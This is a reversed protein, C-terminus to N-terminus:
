TLECGIFSLTVKGSIKLKAQWHQEREDASTIRKIIIRTMKAAGAPSWGHGIKKIRRGIERMMREIMSSVRPHVVGTRLWTRVYSFMKAKANALYTAAAGYGRAKFEDVLHQVGKEAEFVKKELELREELGVRELDEGPLEIDIMAALESTFRKADGAEAKDTYKLLPHLDHPLHWICRQSEKTLRGMYKVLPAEGDSVLLDAIPTFKIKPSPHNAKKIERSIEAWSEETWAGYPVITNEKTIGVVVCVEGRNSGDADLKQKFGTGDAVLTKVRKKMSIADCDSKMVWRHLTTHPVPIAGITQLHQSSRRYSQESVVEAVVRELESTKRQHPELNLYGRLPIFSKGCGVCRIRTWPLSLKGAMSKISKVERSHVVYHAHDCCRHPASKEWRGLLSPYVILDMFAVLLNVLGAMGEEDFMRKTEIVLEDLSFGEKLPLSALCEPTLKQKM